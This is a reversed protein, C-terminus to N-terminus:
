ATERPLHPPVRDRLLRVLEPDMYEYEDRIYLCIIRRSQYVDEFRERILNRQAKEMVFILDAWELLERTVEVAAGARIGASRVELRPDEGYIAAATPSRLRNHDCVFLVKM